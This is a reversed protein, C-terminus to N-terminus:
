KWCTDVPGDSGKVNQSTLTLSGCTSDSFGNAPTATITFAAGFNTIAVGVNYKRSALDNGSFNKWGTAPGAAPAADVQLYVNNSTLYREELQALDLMATRAEARTARQVYSQYSPVAILAFISILTVVIMLEILTFGVQRTKMKKSEITVPHNSAM